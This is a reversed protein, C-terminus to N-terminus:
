ADVGEAKNIVRAQYNVASRTNVEELVIYNFPSQLKKSLEGEENNMDGFTIAGTPCATQCATKVDADRLLRAETKARLKGEQIRQVCFSCKEIVGRARVTVDPNLVMRTLNDAGYPISDSESKMGLDPENIPWLDAANYDLWNFRRVKYPCNNACYRTGVCRNYAMQNLGESSHNTANVPCVNECPANNCHQCMLPQYVASPNNVDGYYYRDIRLWAMEHHRSMERKGVVPVNNEAMCAVTCAGCGICANMDVHMGWHHGRAYTADHGPYVQKTNLEQHHHREEQLDKVFEEVHDLHSKRIITRSVLSGQYGQSVLGYTMYVTAAEDANIIQKTKSDEGTVGMTHHYQVCSFYDEEGKKGSVTVGSAYYQILGDADTKLWPSVNVGVGQGARGTATRGYGLALAFSDPTQGFQKIVPVTLTQEGVTVDALDGDELNEHAIFKRTGDFYVPLALYNGWACRTVPDPMEQLWPNNANQGAGIAVTEMFTIETGTGPQTLKGAVSAVNDKYSAGSSAPTYTYVGDHLLQNWSTASSAQAAWRAKLYEYYPQDSSFILNEGGIWKLLSVERQRTDFLPSITPQIMSVHGRVAEADGWSELFHNSPAVVKCLSSTEDMDIATSITLGVKAMADVIGTVSPLEYAPNAGYVILVDVQNNNMASVLSAVKSEDGQRQLSYNELDVTKGENGLLHNIACVLAQEAINNSGCVLLSEGPAKLMEDATKDVAETLSQSLNPATISSGGTAAAIKNYMRALVAGTESPKIRIRNDANTGTLSMYSEIQIHRSMKAAKPDTIKRTSAYQHAFQVPSIWTGLFDAQVGVIVKAKDFHYGPVMSVGYMLENAKLIAASSVPDYVTVTTNPYKVQFDKVVQKETPSLMSHALIAIRSEPKLTAAVLEDIQQWTANEFNGEANKLQPARLRHTDYLGLVAAQARASTGGGNIKSLQNGEVKIPRGERTKVLVSCYDGGQVFSTAYYNAIGPVIDDPKTVFPIARKLPIECSAAVTAATISFGLYKLFDRRGTSAPAFSAGQALMSSVSSDRMEQTAQDIFKEDRGLDESGIWIDSYSKQDKM